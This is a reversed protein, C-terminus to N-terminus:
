ANGTGYVKGKEIFRNISEVRRQSTAKQEKKWAPEGSTGVPPKSEWQRAALFRRASPIFRGGEEQWRESVSWREVGAIVDGFNGNIGRVAVWESFAERRVGRHEKPYIEWFALFGESERGTEGSKSSAPARSLSAEGLNETKLAVASAVAFASGEAQQANASCKSAAQKRKESLACYKTWQEALKPQVFKGDVKRLTAPFKALLRRFSASFIRLEHCIQRESMTIIGPTESDWALALIDIYIGRQEHNMSQVTPSSRWDKAYFQFAPPKQAM